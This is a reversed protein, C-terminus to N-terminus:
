VARSKAPETVARETSWGCRDIRAKITGQDLGSERAWDCMLKTVGFATVWRSNERNRAQFKLELWQCNEKNYGGNNNVRDLTHKATPRPGMDAIFNEFSLWRDCVTIGRGGYRNYNKNSANLCRQIMSAWSRYTPTKSEGHTRNAESTFRAKACGCSKTEGKSLLWGSVVRTTGCACRSLWLAGGHKNVSHFSLITWLGIQKGAFDLRKKYM